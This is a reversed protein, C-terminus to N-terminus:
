KESFTSGSITKLMGDNQISLKTILELGSIRKENRELPM